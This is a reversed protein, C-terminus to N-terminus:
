NPAYFCNPFQQSTAFLGTIIKLHIASCALTSQSPNQLIFCLICRQAVSTCHNLDASQPSIPLYSISRASVAAKLQHEDVIVTNNYQIVM